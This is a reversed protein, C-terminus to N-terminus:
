LSGPSGARQRNCGQAANCRPVLNLPKVNATIEYLEVLESWPRVQTYRGCMLEGREGITAFRAGSRMIAAYRTKLEIKAVKQLARHRTLSAVRRYDAPFVRELAILLKSHDSVSDRLWSSSPGDELLSLALHGIENKDVSPDTSM